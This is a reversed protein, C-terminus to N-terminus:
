QDSSTETSRSIFADQRAIFDDYSESHYVKFCGISKSTEGNKMHGVSQEAGNLIFTVTESYPDHETDLTEENQIIQHKGKGMFSLSRKANGLDAALTSNPDIAILCSLLGYDKLSKRAELTQADLSAESVANGSLLTLLMPLLAVNHRRM